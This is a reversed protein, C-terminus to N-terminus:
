SFWARIFLALVFIGVIGGLIALPFYSLWSFWSLLSSSESKKEANVQKILSECNASEISNAVDREQESSTMRHLTSFTLKANKIEFEHLLRNRISPEVDSLFTEIAPAPESAPLDLEALRKQVCDRIVPLVSTELIKDPNSAIIAYLSGKGFDGVLEGRVIWHTQQKGFGLVGGKSCTAKASFNIVHNGAILVSYPPDAEAPDDFTVVESALGMMSSQQKFGINDGSLLPKPAEADKEGPGGWKYWGFGAGVLMVLVLVVKLVAADYLILPIRKLLGRPSLEDEKTPKEM